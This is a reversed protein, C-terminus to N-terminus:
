QSSVLGGELRFGWVTEFTNVGFVTVWLVLKRCVMFHKALARFPASVPLFSGNTQCRSNVVVMV